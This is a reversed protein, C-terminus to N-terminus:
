NQERRCVLTLLIIEPLSTFIISFYYWNLVLNFNFRYYKLVLVTCKLYESSNMLAKTMKSDHGAKETALCTLIMLSMLGSEIVM